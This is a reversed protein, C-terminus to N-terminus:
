AQMCTPVPGEQQHLQEQMGTDKNKDYTPKLGHEKGTKDHSDRQAIIIKGTCLLETCRYTTYQGGTVEQMSCQIM